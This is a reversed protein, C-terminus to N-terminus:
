TTDLVERVAHRVDEIGMAVRDKHTRFSLICFRLAYRGRLNTGTIYIRKRSNIREILLRNLADLREGSVGAPVIRFAVTSLQPAAVIEVPEIKKLEDTAWQTLDLKEDLAQRFAAMGHLKVPLWVRLGRFDRSLEPSIECFDVFEPDHRLTPLYDAPSSHAQYLAAADRVVLAGTGYPLFMGKHPDLTVSDAREIGSLTTRGRQTMMFFGGYAGDVHFWTGFREAVDAIRELPDVAGSNVTGASGVVIAPRLGQEHDAEIAEVLRQVDMRFASDTPVTQVSGVPFGAMRAAKTVSHHVEESVYIRGDLFSDGLVKTRAAVIASFNALSGGSTLFGGSTEGFGILHCFWRVVNAELQAIGPGPRWAGVYRNTSNAILDAVAAHPLGGGPVYAMFGPGPTTLSVPIVEDFLFDLLGDADSGSDPPVQEMISRAFAEAGELNWSPQEALSRVHAVIRDTARAVLERFQDESLELPFQDVESM